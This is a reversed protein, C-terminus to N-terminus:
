RSTTSTQCRKTSASTCPEAIGNLMGTRCDYTGKSSGLRSIGFPTANCAAPRFTLWTAAGPTAPMRSPISGSMANTVM